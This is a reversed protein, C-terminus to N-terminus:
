ANLRLARNSLRRVISAAAVALNAVIAALVDLIDAPLAIAVEFDGEVVSARLAEETDFFTVDTSFSYM